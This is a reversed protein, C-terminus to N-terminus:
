GGGIPKLEVGGSQPAPARLVRINKKRQLAEVAGEAYSPAIIVETFIEAVQRAMEVTVERNAAVVGGFASVPDCAHAKRHAEAMAADDDRTSIAIGCPNAHKIVAVCPRSHDFAARWAA